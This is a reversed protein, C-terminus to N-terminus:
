SVGARAPRHCAVKVYMTHSAKPAQVVERSHLNVATRDRKNKVDFRACGVFKVLALEVFHVGKMPPERTVEGRREHM